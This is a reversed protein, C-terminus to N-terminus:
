RKGEDEGPAAGSELSLKVDSLLKIEWEFDYNKHRMINNHGGVKVKPYSMYDGYIVTLYQEARNPAFTERGEWRIPRLPFVDEM